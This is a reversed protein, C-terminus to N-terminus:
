LALYLIILLHNQVVELHSHITHNTNCIILYKPFCFVNNEGRKVERKVIDKMYTCTHQRKQYKNLIKPNTESCMNCLIGYYKFQIMGLITSYGSNSPSGYHDCFWLITQTPFPKLSWRSAVVTVHVEVKNFKWETEFPSRESSRTASLKTWGM